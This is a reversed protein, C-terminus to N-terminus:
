YGQVIDNGQLRLKMDTENRNENQKSGFCVKRKQKEKKSMTEGNIYGM